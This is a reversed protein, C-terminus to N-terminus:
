LVVDGSALVISYTLSVTFSSVFIPGYLLGVCINVAAANNMNALFHFFGWIGM